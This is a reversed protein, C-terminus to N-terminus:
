LPPRRAGEEREGLETRAAELDVVTDVDRAATPEDLLTLHAGKVLEHVSAGETTQLGDLRGRLFTTRYAGMLPQRHGGADVLISGDHRCEDVLGRVVDATMFPIDVSMVVVVDAEVLPLAMALAAVPGGGPPRERTWIVPVSTVREPGVCVIRGAGGLTALVRELLPEGGVEVLAKDIGGLRSGEGGALVIADFAATM